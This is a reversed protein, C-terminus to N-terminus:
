ESPEIRVHTFRMKALRYYMRAIRPTYAVGWNVWEGDSLHQIRYM